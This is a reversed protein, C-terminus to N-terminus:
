ERVAVGQRKCANNLNSFDSVMGYLLRIPWLVALFWEHSLYLRSLLLFTLVLSVLPGFCFSSATSSSSGCSQKETTKIANAASRLPSAKTNWCNHQRSPSSGGSMSGAVYTLQWRCWGRYLQQECWVGIIQGMSISKVQQQQVSQQQQQM